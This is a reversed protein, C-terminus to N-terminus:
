DRPRFARVLPPLTGKARFKIVRAGPNLAPVEDVRRIVTEADVVVSPELADSDDGDVHALPYMSTPREYVNTPDNTGLRAFAAGREQTREQEVPELTGLAEAVVDLERRM